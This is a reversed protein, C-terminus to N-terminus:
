GTRSVRPCSGPTCCRSTRTRPCRPGSSAACWGACASQSTPTSNFPTLLPTSLRRPRLNFALPPRLSVGAFTRLSRREGRWRPRISVLTYFAGSAIVIESVVTAAFLFLMPGPPPRDLGEIVVDDDDDDDEDEFHSTTVSRRTVAATSNSGDGARVRKLALALLVVYTAYAIPQTMLFISDVVGPAEDENTWVRLTITTGVVSVFLGGAKMADVREIRLAASMAAAALPILPQVMATYNPGSRQNCVFVLAYATGIAAGMPLPWAREWGRLARGGERRALWYLFPLALALRLACFSFPPIHDLASAATIHMGAFLLQALVLAGHCFANSPRAYQALSWDLLARSAARVAPAFTGGGGPPAM